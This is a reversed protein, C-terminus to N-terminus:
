AELLAVIVDHGNERAFDIATRGNYFESSKNAGQEILWKCADISGHAAASMLPTGGLRDAVDLPCGLRQLFQLNAVKNAEAAALVADGCPTPESPIPQGGHAVLTQLIKPDSCAGARVVPTGDGVGKRNPDAGAKCLLEVVELQGNTVAFDLLSDNYANLPQNSDFGMSLLENLAAARGKEVLQVLIRRIRDVRPDVKEIDQVVARIAIPDDKRCAAAFAKLNM